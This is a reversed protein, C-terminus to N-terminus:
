TSKLFMMKYLIIKASELIIEVSNTRTYEGRNVNFSEWYVAM